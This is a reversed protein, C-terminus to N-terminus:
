PSKGCSLIPFCEGICAPSDRGRAFRERNSLFKAVRLDLIGIATLDAPEGCMRALFSACSATERLRSGALISKESPHLAESV